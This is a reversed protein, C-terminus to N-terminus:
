FLTPPNNELETLIKEMIAQRFLAAKTGVRFTECYAKIASM